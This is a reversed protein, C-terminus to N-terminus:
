PNSLYKLPDDPIGDVRVEFHLHPGTTLRGAGPTGPQGGSYGIIEGRQVFSDEAVVIKSIHGYVTSLSNSHLIMIYSYGMGADKARAVVGSASARVPTGQYARIDIAPHEFIYRFPYDSDHFYASIGRTPVVPWSLTANADATLRDALDIKQRLAKELYRIDNDASSQENKLDALLYRYQQESSKTQVLLGDKLGREDELRLRASELERKHSLVEERKSERAVREFDLLEKAEKVRDLTEDVSLQLRGISHLYAFFDNLSDHTALIELLSRNFGQRYLKRALSGLLQRENAMETEHEDIKRNLVGIELEITAIEDKAIDIELQQKAIRNDLLSIQDDLSQAELQKDSVLKRYQSIKSNLNALSDRKQQVEANMQQIQRALEGSDDQLVSTQALASQASLLPLSVLAGFSILAALIFSIALKDRYVPM